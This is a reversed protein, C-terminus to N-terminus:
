EQLVSWMLTALQDVAAEIDAPSHSVPVALALGDVVSIVVRLLARPDSVPSSAFLVAAGSMLIRHYEETAPEMVSRLDADTRAALMLEHWTRNEPSSGLRVLEDLVRCLTERSDVPGIDAAAFAAGQRRAVETAAAALLARRNPFHRFLAGQSLGARECIAQTTTAAYGRENLLAITADLLQAITRERRETQTAM